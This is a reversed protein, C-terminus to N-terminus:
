QTMLAIRNLGAGKAIDIVTAIEEFNLGKDARVFIVQTATGAFLSKLRAGLDELALSEQNLRVRKNGEVTIVLAPPPESSSPKDDPKQPIRTDLGLSNSPLVIIFIIILVLLVDIMPTVNMEAKPRSNGNGGLSMAM